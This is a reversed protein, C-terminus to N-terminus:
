GEVVKRKMLGGIGSLPHSMSVELHGRAVTMSAGEYSTGGTSNIEPWIDGISVSSSEERMAGAAVDHGSGDKLSFFLLEYSSSLIEIIDSRPANLLNVDL